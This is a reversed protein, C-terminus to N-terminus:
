HAKLNRYIKGFLKLEWINQTIKFGMKFFENLSTIKDTRIYGIASKYGDEKAKNLLLRSVFPLYGRGRFEPFTFANEIMVQHENLSYFTNKFYKRINVNEDPYLIWQFYAIKSDVKMVFCNRFGREYFLIRGLIERRDETSYTEVLQKIELFDDESAPSLKGTPNRKLPYDSLTQLNVKM